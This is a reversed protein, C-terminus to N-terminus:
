NGEIAEFRYLKVAYPQLTAKISGASAMYIGSHLDLTKMCGQPFGSVKVQVAEISSNTLILYRKGGYQINQMSVSPYDHPFAGQQWQIREPGQVFELKLDHRREGWLYVSDLDYDTFRKVHKYWAEKYWNWTTTDSAGDWSYNNWSYVQFGQLGNNLALYLDHEVIKDIFVETDREPIPEYLAGFSVTAPRKRVLPYAADLLTATKVVNCVLQNIVGNHQYFGPKGIRELYMQPGVMDLWWHTDIMQSASVGTVDSMWLPRQKPDHLQIMDRFKQIYALDGDFRRTSLEESGQLWVEVTDNYVPDDVVAKIRKEVERWIGAEGQPTALRKQLKLSTGATDAIKHAAKLGQDNARKLYSIDRTDWNPGIVTFGAEALRKLDGESKALWAAIM